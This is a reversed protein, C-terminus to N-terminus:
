KKKEPEQNIRGGIFLLSRMKKTQTKHKKGKEREDNDPEAADFFQNKKKRQQRGHNLALEYWPKWILDSARAEDAEWEVGEAGGLADAPVPLAVDGGQGEVAEALRSTESSRDDGEDLRLGVADEGRGAFM